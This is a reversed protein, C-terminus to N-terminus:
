IEKRKEPSILLEEINRSNVDLVLRPKVIKDIIKNKM